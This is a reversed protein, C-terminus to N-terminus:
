SSTGVIIVDYTVSTGSGSNAVQLLDATAATVPWGAPNVMLFVGGPKVGVKDTADAFPGLFADSAAGGVVVSNTNAVAARIYIAKVKVFTLAAGFPDTLAGALDINASGSASITLTASYVKDAQGVAVGPVLRTLSRQNFAYSPAANLTAPGAYVGNVQATIDVNVSSAYAPARVGCFLVCLVIFAVPLARAKLAEAFRPM